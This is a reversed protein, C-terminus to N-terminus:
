QNLTIILQLRVFECGQWFIQDQNRLEDYVRVVKSLMTQHINSFTQVFRVYISWRIAAGFKNRHIQLLELYTIHYWIWLIM